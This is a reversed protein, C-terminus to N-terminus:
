TGGPKAMTAFHMTWRIKDAVKMPVLAAPTGFVSAGVIIKVRNVYDEDLFCSSVRPNLYVARQAMHYLWHWKPTFPWLLLGDEDAKNALKTYVLLMDNILNAFHVADVEPLFCQGSNDSLINQADIQKRLLTAIRGHEYTTYEALQEWAFLLPEVFCKAECGKGKLRPYTSRPKDPDVFLSITLNGYQTPVSNDSYFKRILEWVTGLNEAASGPLCHYCMLWLVSGCMQQVTGMYMTHLEDPEINNQSLFPFVRFIMHLTRAHILRWEDVTFLM